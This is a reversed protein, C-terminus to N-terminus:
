SVVLGDQNKTRECKAIGCVTRNNKLRKEKLNGLHVAEKLRKTGEKDRALEIAFTESRGECINTNAEHRWIQNHPGWRRGTGV